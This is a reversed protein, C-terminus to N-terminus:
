SIWLDGGSGTRALYAPLNTSFVVAGTGLTLLLAVEASEDVAEAEQEVADLSAPFGQLLAVKAAVEAREATTAFASASAIL